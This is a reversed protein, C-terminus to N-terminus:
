IYMPMVLWLQEPNKNAGDGNEFLFMGTKEGTIVILIEDTELSELATLVFTPNLGLKIPDTGNNKVELMEVADNDKFSDSATIELDKDDLSWVMQNQSFKNDSQRASYLKLRKMSDIMEQRDVVIGSSKDAGEYLPKCNPFKHNAQVCIVVFSGCNIGIKKGDSGITIEPPLALSELVVATNKSLIMPKLEKDSEIKMVGMVYGQNTAIIEIGDGENRVSIGALQPKIDSPSVSGSVSSVSKIFEESRIKAHTLDKQIMEMTSYDKPNIGTMTYKKKSGKVTVVTRFVRGDKVTSKIILNEASMLKITDCFLKGPICIEHDEDSKVKCFGKIQIESNRAYLHCDEGEIKLYICEWAPLTTKGFGLAQAVIKTANVLAETDVTIKM